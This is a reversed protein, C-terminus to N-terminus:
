RPNCSVVCRRACIQFQARCEDGRDKNGSCQAKAARCKTICDEVCARSSYESLRLNAAPREQIDAAFVHGASFLAAALAVLAFPARLTAIINPM